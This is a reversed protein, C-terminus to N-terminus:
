DGKNKQFLCLIDKPSLNQPRLSPSLDCSTFLKEIESKPIDSFDALNNIAKKRPQRFLARAVKYYEKPAAIKNRLLSIVASDVKPVPRFDNRPVAFLYEPTAWGGISSSLINARPPHSNIREAVEKQVLLVTKLPPIPLESVIKLLHGTIYYPINGVLKWDKPLSLNALEKLADGQIVQLNSFKRILLSAFEKDKEIVILNKPCSAVLFETLEGHGPGVEVVTDNKKITLSETIKRLAEKNELFNQGLSKNARM